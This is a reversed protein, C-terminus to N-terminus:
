LDTSESVLTPDASSKFLTNYAENEKLEIHGKDVKQCSTLDDYDGDGASGKIVTATHEYGSDDPEPYLAVPEPPLPISEYTHDPVDEKPEKKGCKKKFIIVIVVVTVLSVILASTM